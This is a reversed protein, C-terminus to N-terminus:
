CWVVSALSYGDDENNWMYRCVVKNGYDWDYPYHLALYMAAVELYHKTENSM